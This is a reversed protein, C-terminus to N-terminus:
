PCRSRRHSESCLPFRYFVESSPSRVLQGMDGDGRGENGEDGKNGTKGVQRWVGNEGSPWDRLPSGQRLATLVAWRLFDMGLLDRWLLSSSSALTAPNELVVAFPWSPEEDLM